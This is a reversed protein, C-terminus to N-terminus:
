PISGVRRVVHVSCNARATVSSAVSRWWAMAREDPTPAGLVILDVNNRQAFEVIADAPDDSELVHLTAHEANVGLPQLWHRLRIRHELQADSEGKEPVGLQTKVVSICILRKEGGLSLIRRVARQLFPQRPDDPNATDIAVLVVMAVERAPTAAIAFGRANWWRRAHAFLSTDQTHHSRPRLAVQDPNRLDFAVHAASQYRDEADPELCRLIVEQLWPPVEPNVASPPRPRKWLRDRMGASSQPAGFPLEGTALEYLTAGLAFLDSRTDSRVGLVQEPSVYPASGAAHRREEQLLDPLDRHHALGFDILVARGDPRMLINEPKLDLHITDQAHLEHLADAIAAGIRAVEAPALTGKPRRDLSTGEIREVAIYPVATVDGAAVFRPVHEGRLLPMIMAETEFALLVEAADADGLRPVKVLIPFDCDERSAEYVEGMAGAHIRRGLLFGELWADEHVAQM